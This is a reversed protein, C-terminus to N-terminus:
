NIKPRIVPKPKPVAPVPAADTVIKLLYKRRVGNIKYLKRSTFSVPSMQEFEERWEKWLLPEAQSFAASDIRKGALYEEFTM